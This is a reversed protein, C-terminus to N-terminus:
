GARFHHDTRQLVLSHLVDEPIGSPGYQVNVICQELLVRDAVNQNTVLLRSGMRRVAIGTGGALRTHDHDGGPRAGSVGNGAQGGSKHVRNGHHHQGTLYARVPNAIVGELFGVHNTHGTRHHLM